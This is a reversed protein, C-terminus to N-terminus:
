FLRLIFTGRIRETVVLNSILLHPSTRNLNWEAIMTEIFIIVNEVYLIWM